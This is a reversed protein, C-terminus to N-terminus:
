MSHYKTAPTSCDLVGFHALMLILKLAGNRYLKTLDIYTKPVFASVPLCAPRSPRSLGGWMSRPVISEFMVTM